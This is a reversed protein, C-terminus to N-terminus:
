PWGPCYLSVRGKFYFNCLAVSTSWRYLVQRAYVLSWRWLWGILFCVFLIQPQLSVETGLRAQPERAHHQMGETWSSLLCLPRQSDLCIFILAPPEQFSDTNPEWWGHPIEWLRKYSWNWPVWHKRECARMGVYSRVFLCIICACVCVCLSM